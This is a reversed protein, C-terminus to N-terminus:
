EYLGRAGLWEFTLDIARHMLEPQGVYYHTAGEIVRFDKDGSAAAEYVRRTHPQPVADDASNEIALLPARIRAACKEGHANTDDVPIKRIVVDEAEVPKRAPIPRTAVVVDTTALSGQGAQQQAQNILFFAAGGAALALVVGIIVIWRGRKSPDRYEMEM